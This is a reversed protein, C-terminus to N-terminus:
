VAAGAPAVQVQVASDALSGWVGAEDAVTCVLRVPVYAAERALLAALEPARSATVVTLASGALLSRERQLVAALPLGRDAEAAALADMAAFWSGSGGDLPIRQIAAGVLLLTAHQGEAGIGHVLTAVVRLLADLGERDDGLLARDLDVVLTLDARAADEMERVMLRGTRASSKWDVRRLSEGHQHERIGHLDYGVPQARRARLGLEGDGAVGGEAGAPPYVRPWVIVATAGALTRQGRAFGFPDGLALAGNRLPHVGRALAPVILTGHRSADGHRQLPATLAHGGVHVHVEGSSPAHGDVRVTGVFPEGETPRSPEFAMTLRLHAHRHRRLVAAAVLPGIVLALALPVLAEAGFGLAVAYAVLGGGLAVWGRRTLM